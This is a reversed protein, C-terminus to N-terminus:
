MFGVGFRKRQKSRIKTFVMPKRSSEKKKPRVDSFGLARPLLRYMYGVLDAGAVVVSLRAQFSALAPGQERNEPLNLSTQSGLDPGPGLLYLSCSGQGQVQSGSFFFIWMCWGGVGGVPCVGAPRRGALWFEPM